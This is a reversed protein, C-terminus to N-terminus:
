FFFTPYPLRPRPPPYGRAPSPLLHVRSPPPFAANALRNSLRSRSERPALSPIRRFITPSSPAHLAPPLDSLRSPSSLRSIALTPNVWPNLYPNPHSISSQRKINVELLAFALENIHAQLAYESGCTSVAPRRCCFPSSQATRYRSPRAAATARRWRFHTSTRLHVFPWYFALCTRIPSHSVPCSVWGFM